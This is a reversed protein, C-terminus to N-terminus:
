RKKLKIGKKKINDLICFSDFSEKIDDAQISVYLQTTETRSHGLVRQLFLVNGGSKIYNYAFTHRFLHISTKTVGRSLNYDRLTQKISNRTLQDGYQNMFLWDEQQHEFLSLYHKLIKVLESSLPVFYKKNTKTTDLYLMESKFDVDKIRLNILTRCRIGTGLFTSIMAHNRWQTYSQVVPEKLLRQIEEQTYPIKINKELRIVPFSIDIDAYKTFAILSKLRTKISTNNNGRNRLYLVFNDIDSACLQDIPKNGTVELFMKSTSTYNYLTASSLGRVECNLLWKDMVVSLSDKQTNSVNIKLVKRM